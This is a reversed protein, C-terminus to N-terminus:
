ETEVFRMSLDVARIDKTLGGVSIDDVGTEAIARLTSLDVGGSAELRARGTCIRVAERLMELDFNDLLIRKGGAALAAELEALSEVEVEIEVDPSLRRAAELAAGISGAAQIHNEKILIADFLGIRHNACGGCRVAYKQALRLGPLTKRTDLIRAGTGTVAEAYLRALTATASLTQLFNMATREGSLLARTPGELECLIRGPALLDGDRDHWRIRIQPDLQRFVEDAWPAGCLVAQERCALTVRSRAAAPILAATLDGSGLDEELAARVQRAISEVPPPLPPTGTVAGPSPEIHNSM